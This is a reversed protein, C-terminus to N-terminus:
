GRVRIRAGKLNYPPHVIAFISLLFTLAILDRARKIDRQISPSKFCLLFCFAQNSFGEILYLGDSNPKEVMAVM